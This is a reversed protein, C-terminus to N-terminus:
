QVPRSLESYVRKDKDDYKQTSNSYEFHSQSQSQKPQSKVTIVKNTNNKYNTRRISCFDQSRDLDHILQCTQELTSIDQM